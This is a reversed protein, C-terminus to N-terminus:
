QKNIVEIKKVSQFTGKSSTVAKDYYIEVEMGPRLATCDYDGVYISDVRQGVCSRGKEPNNYYDPFADAVHLTTSTRGDGSKTTNKGLIKM